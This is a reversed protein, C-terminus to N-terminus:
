CVGLRRLRDTHEAHRADDAEEDLRPLIDVHRRTCRWVVIQMVPRALALFDRRRGEGAEWTDGGSHTAGRCGGGRARGAVPPVGVSEKWEERGGPAPFRTSVARVVLGIM